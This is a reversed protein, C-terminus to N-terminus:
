SFILREEGSRRTRINEGGTYYFFYETSPTSGTCINFSSLHGIGTENNMRGDRNISRNMDRNRDVKRDREPRGAEIDVRTHLFNHSADPNGCRMM